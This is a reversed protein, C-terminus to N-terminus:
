GSLWRKLGVFPNLFKKQSLNESYGPQSCVRLNAQRERGLASVLLRCWKSSDSPCAVSPVARAVTREMGRRMPEPTM